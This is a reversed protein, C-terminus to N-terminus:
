ASMAHFCLGVSNVASVPPVQLFKGLNFDWKEKYGSRSTDYCVNSDSKSLKLILTLSPQNRSKRPVYSIMVFM